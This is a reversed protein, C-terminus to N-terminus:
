RATDGVALQPIVGTITAPYPLSQQVCYQGPVTYTPDLFTRADGTVLDTVVQNTMSGVNGVILDKMDVLTSFSSGIKLGLTQDVRLDVAPIKKMKGQITPEGTDIALTQLQATFALGITVKSAPASLTFNGNVPMTFSPIIVGDALGTVTAAALHQAGSFTTAPAGSYQLGADVCWADVKGNPFIRDAMREIYQVTNGNITRQVVLYVADVNGIATSEVVSAVSKFLGNTDHHTWAIFEEEKAFTLCLMVGDNRIAWVLRFPAYAWTWELIQYGFFLHSALASIDTGTFVNAYFNYTSDRVSDGKFEVYLIDFNNLIPPVDNAGNFSQQNAVISSPGIASGLSGGNILWSAKDTFVILGAATSIMSKITQLTGSVLTGSIADNPEIPNSINFNYPAGPQSYDLEGPADTPGGLVLRQQFFGPVAPPTSGTPSIAATATAAGSSFVISPVSNYGSGPITINVVGVGWTLNFTRGTGGGTTSVQSVPNAPVSGNYIAGPNIITIPAVALTGVKISVGNSLNVIDGTVYGAGAASSAAAHIQLVPSISAGVEPTGGSTTATPVITYTGSATVTVSTLAGGVFPNNLIPPTQSFDPSINSDILSQGTCNGIFGYPVGVPIVGFYSVDSKYVNYSQAGAAADWSISNSGAVTRLDELSPLSAPPSGGSEEGSATVSTVIYSYNTNGAGLTTALVVNTPINASTGFNITQITWNNFTILTLVQAAYDPHCLIMTNVNQVFKLLNLDAAAYPTAITYIRATTGGSIYTTYGTSDINVGNLDGLTVNNGSVALVQYYNGNLQTMGVVGTIFIWDGIVYDNSTAAIVCPNAKSAATINFTSELIPSANNYFRLYFDGFELIYTVNSSAQFPILRVATASKYAQLIYRTGPRTSAGGRYDVFFNKLLAAGSRYKEIDVRSYLQPAWEGSNFSKQMVPQAM